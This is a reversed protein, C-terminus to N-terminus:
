YVLRVILIVIKTLFKGGNKIAALFTNKNCELGPINKLLNVYNKFLTSSYLFGLGLDSNGIVSMSQKSSM